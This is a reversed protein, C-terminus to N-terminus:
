SLICQRALHNVRHDKLNAYIVVYKEEGFGALKKVRDYLEKLWIPNKVLKENKKKNQCFVCKTFVFTKALSSSSM